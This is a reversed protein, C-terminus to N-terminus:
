NMLLIYRVLERLTIVKFIWFEQSSVLHREELFPFGEIVKERESAVSTKKNNKCSFKVDEDCTAKILFIIIINMLIKEHDYECKFSSVCM